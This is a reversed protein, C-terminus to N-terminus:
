LPMPVLDRDIVPLRARLDGPLARVLASRTRHWFASLLLLASGILLATFAFSLNLSGFHNFVQAMAALVYVLASVLLARRDVALAVLALGVYLLLAVGARWLAPEGGGILGLSSFVPHVIMPAAALHLWFAVDSRRTLRERDSMDWRMAVAFTVLGAVFVLPLVHDRAAPIAAILLG